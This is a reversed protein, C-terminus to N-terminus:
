FSDCYGYSTYKASIFVIYLSNFTIRQISVLARWIVMATPAGKLGLIMMLYDVAALWGVPGHADRGGSAPM